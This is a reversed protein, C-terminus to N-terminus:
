RTGAPIIQLMANAVPFQDFTGTRGEIDTALVKYSFAGTPYGKPVVFSTTWFWINSGKPHEGYKFAQDKGDPLTLAFSKLQKDSMAKATVPDMVKFRWVIQQDPAFRNQQVCSLFKKEEDTLNTSGRVTDGVLILTKPVPAAAVTPAATTPAPAATQAPKTPEPEATGGCSGLVIAASVLAAGLGRARPALDM